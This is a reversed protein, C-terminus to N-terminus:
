HSPTNVPTREEEAELPIGELHIRLYIRGSKGVQLVSQGLEAM